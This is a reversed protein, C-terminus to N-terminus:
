YNSIGLGIKSFISVCTRRKYSSAHTFYIIKRLNLQMDHLTYNKKLYTQTCQKSQDVLGIKTFFINVHVNYSSPNRFYDIKKLIAIPLQLSICSATDQLYIQPCSKLLRNVGNQRFNIYKCTIHHHM